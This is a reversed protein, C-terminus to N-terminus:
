KAQNLKVKRLIINESAMHKLVVKSKTGDKRQKLIRYEIGDNWSIYVKQIFGFVTESFDLWKAVEVLDGVEYKKNCRVYELELDKLEKNLTNINSQIIDRKQIFEEKKM